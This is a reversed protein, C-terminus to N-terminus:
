SALPHATARIQEGKEREARRLDYDTQLRLWFEPSVGFCKGLRLAYEASLRRKGQVLENFRVYSIGSAEAVAKQTLGAPEIFEELLIRGPPDFSILAPKQPM